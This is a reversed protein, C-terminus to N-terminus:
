TPKELAALLADAFEVAQAAVHRETIPSGDKARSYQSVSSILGQMAMAAFLERKTLGCGSKTYQNGWADKSVLTHPFAQQSGLDTSKHDSASM